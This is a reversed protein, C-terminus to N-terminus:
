DTRTCVYEGNEDYEDVDFFGDDILDDIVDEKTVTIETWVRFKYANRM